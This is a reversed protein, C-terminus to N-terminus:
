AASVGVVNRIQKLKTVVDGAREIDEVEFVIHFKDKRTKTHIANVKMQEETFTNLLDSFLGTRDTAQVQIKSVNVQGHEKWSLPVINKKNLSNLSECGLNHVSIRGDKMRYGTIARGYECRCDQSLRLKANDPADIKELLYERMLEREQKPDREQTMGLKQRIKSKATNTKAFKLWNRSPLANRRTLIEVVDGSGLQHDLPVINNNVKASVCRDGVGSHVRYAFDIPTAGEPLPIPDGKPTLVYIEDKFVDIKLNEIFEKANASRKWELIQKLWGITRDFKKDRDTDKYRWHAAIGEEAVYHMESTRVQVEAPKGDIVVETHLSQYMNPKPTSIYDDFRGPIPQFTEHLLALVRYCDDINKVVVRMASLDHIEKFKLDKRRMKKYISFFNKARGYVEAEIEKRKLLAAIKKTNVAVEREREEKTRSIQSKLNQYVHPMLFRMCLDELESKIRYIGLKYAIPVYIELTEKAIRKQETISKHKLTRMNHLRDALKILIVRIDKITALLVKRVNEARREEDSDLKIQANDIKTVGQILELIEKGFEKKIQKDTIPTDEIVDHLLGAAITASDLRLSAIIHAVNRVHEFYPEGSLRKQGAHAEEAYTYARGILKLDANPNYVLLHRLYGDKDLGLVHNEETM